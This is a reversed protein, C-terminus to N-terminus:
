FEEFELQLDPAEEEKERNRIVPERSQQQRKRLQLVTGPEVEEGVKMNNLHYLRKLKIGYIQSIDWMSEQGEVIHHEVGKLARCRKPEIYLLMGPEIETDRDIDNYRYLEWPYLDLEDRLSDATDGEKAIIYSINNNRFIERTVPAAENSDTKM